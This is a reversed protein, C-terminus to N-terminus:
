KRKGEAKQIYQVIEDILGPDESSVFHLRDQVVATGYKRALGGFAEELFSTAFGEVGDLVITIPEKNHKDLFHPELMTVRFDEGSYPGDIRYRAGPTKTYQLAINLTIM